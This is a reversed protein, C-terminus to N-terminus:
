PKTTRSPWHSPEIRVLGRNHQVSEASACPGVVAGTCSARLRSPQMSSARAAHSAALPSM